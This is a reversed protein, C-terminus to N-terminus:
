INSFSLIKAKENQLEGKYITILIKQLQDGIQKGEYGLAMLDDGTIALDKIQFPDNKVDMDSLVEQIQNPLVKSEVPIIPSIKYARSILSKNEWTTNYNEEWLIRLARIEKMTPIDGKLREIFVEDQRKMPLLFFMFEGLTKVKNFDTLLGNFELDFIAKYLGSAVLLYVGTGANGKQVIKELEILIREGTIEKISDVSKVILSWTNPEIEFDFRAAFQIARLMRLPDDSFAEPNVIRITKDKLDQVGNFPDILNGNTDKAIANITFDRRFLDTEIPLSPDANVEFGKHGSGIKIETRPIAIDIAEKEGKPTFKLVGFSKGVLDSKGYPILLEAMQEMDLGAVLIDTDKSKKGILSDRVQGGVQYVKAGHKEFDKIFPFESLTM